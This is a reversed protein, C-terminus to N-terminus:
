LEEPELEECYLEIRAKFPSEAEGLLQDVKNEDVKRALQLLLSSSFWINRWKALQVDGHTRCSSKIQGNPDQRWHQQLSTGRYTMNLMPHNTVGPKSLNEM